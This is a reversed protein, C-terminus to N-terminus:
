HVAYKKLIDKSMSIRVIHAMNYINIGHVTTVFIFNNATDLDISLIDDDYFSVSSDAGAALDIQLGVKLKTM